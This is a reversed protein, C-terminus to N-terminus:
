IADWVGPTVSVKAVALSVKCGFEYKKNGEREICQVDPGHVCYVKVSDSKKQHIIQQFVGFEAAYKGIRNKAIKKLLKRTPRGANVKLRKEVRIAERFRVKSKRFRQLYLYKKRVRSYRQRLEIEERDAVRWCHEIIRSYLKVDTPHTINKEQV